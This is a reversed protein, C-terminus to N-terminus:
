PKGAGPANSGNQVPAGSGPNLNFVPVHPKRFDKELHLEDTIPMALGAIEPRQPGLLDLIVVQNEGAHLWCGPAYATQSPGINWYRGLCHGNVWLDGKRWGRLDLFTDGAKPLSVTGRWFSPSNPMPEKGTFKLGALMKDDLPLNFVEWGKLNEGGFKVPAILGKRDAMESGFNIRGMPEVLIDLQSEMEREPLPLNCTMNRRDLIGVRRGNLFVFGFDRIAAAEL